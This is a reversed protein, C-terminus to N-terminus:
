EQSLLTPAATDTRPRLVCEFPKPHGGLGVSLGVEPELPTGDEALAMELNFASLLTVIFINVSAMALYNGPCRRRGFGFNGPPTPEGRLYRDPDFLEPNEYKDAAMAMAKANAFVVTGKPIFMGNYTDDRLSMHPIVLPNLPLCRLTENMFCELFPLNPLDDFDPLRERGVVEDLENQLREQVKPYKVLFLMCSQLTSWTTNGGAIFIAGAAGKVDPITLEQKKGAEENALFTGLHTRMFSPATTGAEYDKLAAKWPVEHITQITPRSRRAHRLPPSINLWDPLYRALPFIDVLTSGPVGGETTAYNAALSMECYPSDKSAVEQGYAVRFIISTAMLLTIDKWDHPDALLSRVAKRAEQLQMPRFTKINSQSFSTQFLRRHLKFRPGWRLFTLTLGWGMVEFLTFRPRDSYINGRKDLLDSATEVSNLSLMHQGLVKTHIIDSQVTNKVGAFTTWRQINPASRASFVWRWVFALLSTAMLVGIVPHAHDLITAM